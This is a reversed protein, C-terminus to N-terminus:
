LRRRGCLQSRERIRRQMKKFKKKKTPTLLYFLTEWCKNLRPVYQTTPGTTVKATRGRTPFAALQAFLLWGSFLKLLDFKTWRAFTLQKKKNKQKQNLTLNGRFDLYIQSYHIQFDLQSMERINKGIDFSGSLARTPENKHGKSLCTCFHITSKKIKKVSQHMQM